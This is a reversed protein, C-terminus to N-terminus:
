GAVSASCTRFFSAREQRMLLSWKVLKVAIYSLENEGACAKAQRLLQLAAALERGARLLANEERHAAEVAAQAVHRGDVCLRLALALRPKM